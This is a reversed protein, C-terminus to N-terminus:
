LFNCVNFSLDKSSEGSTFYYIIETYFNNIVKYM